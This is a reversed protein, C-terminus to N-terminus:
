TARATGGGTLLLQNSETDIKMMLRIKLTRRKVTCRHKSIEKEFLQFVNNRIDLISFLFYFCIELDSRDFFKNNIMKLWVVIM